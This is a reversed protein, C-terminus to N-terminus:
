LLRALRSSNVWGRSGPLLYSWLSWSSVCCGWYGQLADWGTQTHGHRKLGRLVDAVSKLRGRFLLIPSLFSNVFFPAGEVDVGDGQNVRMCDALM